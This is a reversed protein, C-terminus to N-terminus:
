LIFRNLTDKWDVFEQFVKLRENKNSEIDLEKKKFDLEELRNKMFEISSFFAEEHVKLSKKLSLYNIYLRMAAESPRPMINLSDLEERIEDLESYLLKQQERIDAAKEYKQERIIASKVPQLELASLKNRLIRVEIDFLREEQKRIESYNTGKNLKFENIYPKLLNLFDRNSNKLEFLEQPLNQVMSEDLLEKAWNKRDELSVPNLHFNLNAERFCNDIFLKNELREEIRSSYILKAKRDSLEKFFEGLKEMQDIHGMLFHINDILVIPSSLISSLHYKTLEDFNHEQTFQLFSFKQRQKCLENAIANLLYSSGNGSQSEIRITSFGEFQKALYGKLENILHKDGKFNKFQM